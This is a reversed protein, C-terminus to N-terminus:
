SVPAVGALCLASRGFFGRGDEKFYGNTGNTAIDMDGMRIRSGRITRFEVTALHVFLDRLHEVEETPAVQKDVLSPVVKSLKIDRGTLTPPTSEVKYVAQGEPTRYIANWPSGTSLIFHINSM